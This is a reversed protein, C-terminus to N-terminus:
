PRFEEVQCLRCIRLPGWPKASDVGYADLSVWRLHGLLQCLVVGVVWWAGFFREWWALPPVRPWSM